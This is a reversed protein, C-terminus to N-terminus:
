VHKVFIFLPEPVQMPVSQLYAQSAWGAPGMQYDPLLLLSTKKMGEDGKDLPHAKRDLARSRVLVQAYKWHRGLPLQSEPTVTLSSPMGLGALFPQKEPAYATCLLLSEARQDNATLREGRDPHRCRSLPVGCLTVARGCWPCHASAGSATGTNQLRKWLGPQPSATIPSAWSASLLDWLPEGEVASELYAM